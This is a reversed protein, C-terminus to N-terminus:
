NYFNYGVNEKLTIEENAGSRYYEFANRTLKHRILEELDDVSVFKNIM